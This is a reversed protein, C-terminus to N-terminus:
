LSASPVDYEALHLDYVVVVAQARSSERIDLPEVLGRSTMHRGGVESSELEVVPPDWKDDL